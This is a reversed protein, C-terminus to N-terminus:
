NGKRGFYDQDRKEYNTYGLRDYLEQRTMMKPISAQQHGHTFVDHLTEEAARMAVRFATLPFIVLRYGFRGLTEVDLLPGRGFETMNALLPAPCKQGFAAFEETTELAEPFIMDAGAALYLKARELAKEFGEVSRADTRAIIVFNPDRRAAVAARIKAAMAEPEVLSKGTLHGCRKPLQQDELHIGAVGAAEFQQVTREVNLAEGFGTDADSILPLSTASTIRRAEDIFESLTLLGIDPVGSAASLAGGSLYVAQFGIREALKALFPSFVGPVTVPGATWSRRLRASPSMEHSGPLTM